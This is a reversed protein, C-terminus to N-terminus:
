FTPPSLRHSLDGAIMQRAAGVDVYPLGAHILEQVIRLASAALVRQRRAGAGETPLVDNDDIVIEAARPAPRRPGTKLAEEHPDAAATCARDKGELGRAQGAIPAIPVSKQ